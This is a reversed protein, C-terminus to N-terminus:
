PVHTPDWCTRLDRDLEALKRMDEADLEFDFIEINEKVRSPTVSKPLIVLDQQICWRLM